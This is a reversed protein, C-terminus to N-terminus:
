EEEVWELTDILHEVDKRLYTSAPLISDYNPKAKFYVSGTIFNRVSDTVYFQTQSAANGSIDFLMGYVNKEQNEYIDYIIGDAKVVHEQALNQADRLLSDLNNEVKFYSLYITAKLKSYEINCWNKKRSFVKKAKANVNKEFSYPYGNLHLKEYEADLFSLRLEGKPKPLVDGGCSYLFLSLILLSWIYYIRTSM